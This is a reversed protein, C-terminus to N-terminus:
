EIICEPKCRYIELNPHNMLLEEHIRQIVANSTSIANNVDWGEETMEGFSFKRLIIEIYYPIWSLECKGSHIYMNAWKYIREINEIKLPFKIDNQHKKLCDFVRSLDLPVLQRSNKEIYSIVGFARRIRLEVLQRIVAISASIEMDAFSNCSVQGFLSQRLVQHVSMYHIYRTDIHSRHTFDHLVNNNYLNCLEAADILMWQLIYEYNYLAISPVSSSKLRKYLDTNFIKKLIEILCIANCLYYNKDERKRKLDIPSCALIGEIIQNANRKPLSKVHFTEILQKELISAGSEIFYKLYDLFDIQMEEPLANAGLFLYDDYEISSKM